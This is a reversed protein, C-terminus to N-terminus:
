RRQGRESDRQRRRGRGRSGVVKEIQILRMDSQACGAEEQLRRLWRSVWPPGPLRCCGPEPQAGEQVILTDKDEEEEDEEEEEQEDEQELEKKEGKKTKWEM